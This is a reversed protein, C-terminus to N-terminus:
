VLLMMYSHPPDDAEMAHSYLPVSSYDDRNDVVLVNGHQHMQGIALSLQPLFDTRPVVQLTELIECIAAYQDVGM